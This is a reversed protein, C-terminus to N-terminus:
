RIGTATGERAELRTLKQFRPDNRLTALDPDRQADERLDPNRTVADELLALAEERRNELGYVCALNYYPKPHGPDLEIAKRYETEAESLRRQAVLLNGYNNHTAVSDPDLRIATLAAEEAEGLRGTLRLLIALDNYPRSWNPDLRIATRYADEAEAARDKTYNALLIGLANRPWSWDPKLAIARRFAAEADSFRKEDMSLLGLAHCTEATTLVGRGALAAAASIAAKTEPQAAYPDATLLHIMSDILQRQGETPQPATPSQGSEALDNGSGRVLFVLAAIWVAVGTIYWIIRHHRM